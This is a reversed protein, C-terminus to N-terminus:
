FIRYKKREKGLYHFSEIWKFTRLTIIFPNIEYENKEEM